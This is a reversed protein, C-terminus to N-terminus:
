NLINKLGVVVGLVVVTVAFIRKLQADPLRGSIAIGAVMGTIAFALFAAVFTWDMQVYRLQGLFGTASNFTIIALSTGMAKRSELGAFLVLAPVILFGGGIGIFGTLLGVGLGAAICKYPNCSNSQRLGSSGLWMATGVVLMIGAFILMLTRGSVMHTWASGIYSGAMGSLAFFLVPMREVKGRRLQILAGVLSTAGVIFLSTGVARDPPIGAVYVLVPTTIISGGSGLAGLSLGVLAALALTGLYGSLMAKM